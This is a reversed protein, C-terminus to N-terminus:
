KDMHYQCQKSASIVKCSCMLKILSFYAMILKANKLWNSLPDSSHYKEKGPRFLQIVLDSCATTMCTKHGSIDKLKSSPEVKQMSGM